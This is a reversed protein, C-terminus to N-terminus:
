PRVLTRGVFSDGECILFGRRVNPSLRFTGTGEEFIAFGLKRTRAGFIQGSGFSSSFASPCYSRHASLLAQAM